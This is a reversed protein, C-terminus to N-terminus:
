GPLSLRWRTVALLDVLQQKWQLAEAGADGAVQDVADALQAALGAQNWHGVGALARRLEELQDTVALAEPFGGLRTLEEAQRAAAEELHRLRTRLAPAVDPVDEVQGRSWQAVQDVRERSAQVWREAWRRLNNAPDAIQLGNGARAANPLGTEAAEAAARATAEAADAMGERVAPLVRGVRGLLQGARAVPVLGVVDWAVDAWTADGSESLVLASHIVLMTVGVAVGAILLAPLWAPSTLVLAAVLAVVAIALAVYGLADVVAKLHLAGAVDRVTGKVNDWFGDSFSEAAERIASSARSAAQDLADLADDLRRRAADLRGAAAEHERQRDQERQVAEPPADPALPGTSGTRRLADQAQEADDLAHGSESRAQELPVAWDKVARAVGRYREEAQALEEATDQASAAFKEAAEGSWSSLDSLRRLRAALTAVEEATGEYGAGLRRVADVDAVVPDSGHGLLHWAGPRPSM